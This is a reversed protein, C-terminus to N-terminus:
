GGPRLRAYYVDHTFHATEPRRIVPEAVRVFGTRTAV